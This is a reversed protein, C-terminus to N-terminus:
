ESAKCRGPNIRRHAPDFLSTDDGDLTGGRKELARALSERIPDGDDLTVSGPPLKTSEGGTALFDSTIITLRDTDSVPRGDNRKLVVHAKRGECTVDARVGGISLIGGKRASFNTELWARLDAGTVAIRAYRNDFPMMEFLQGYTLDGAPLNARIGGGNMLAVDAGPSADLMLDVFLNGLASETDYGRRVERAIKVGLKKNKVELAKKVFPQVAKTIRADSVVHEGDYDGTVCPAPDDEACVTQPQFLKLLTAKKTKPDVDFDVRAFGKGNAWAEVVPIGSVMHALQQHTHAAVIVDVIGQPLSGALQFIESDMECSSLDNPDDPKACKGGAHAALVILAAGKARLADAERAVAERLPTVRLGAFNAASTTVATDKTTVGVIGIKVGAKTVLVSSKVNKWDVVKGTKDDVVNAALFPFNAEAIRKKLAGRPDDKPTRPTALPGEPGFDFEHNGIAAADPKLLNYAQIVSEGEVLNSELTGQFLDGADVFVVGGGKKKAEDRLIQLHGALPAVREVRGHLDSTGVVTIPVASAAAPALLALLLPLVAAVSRM